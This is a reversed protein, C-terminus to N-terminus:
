WTEHWCHGASSYVNGKEINSRGMDEQRGDGGKKGEGRRKRKKM